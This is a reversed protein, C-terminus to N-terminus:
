RSMPRWAPQSGVRDETLPIITCTQGRDERKLEAALRSKPIRKLVLFPEFKESERNWIFQKLDIVPGIDQYFSAWWEDDKSVYCIKIKQIPGLARSLELAATRVQQDEDQPKSIRVQVPPGAAFQPNQPRRQHVNGPGASGANRNWAQLEPGEPMRVPKILRNSGIQNKSAPSMTTPQRVCGVSFLLAPVLSFCLFNIILRKFKPRQTQPNPCYTLKEHKISM